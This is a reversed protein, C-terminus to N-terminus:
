RYTLSYHDITHGTLNHAEFAELWLMGKMMVGALTESQSWFETKCHCIKVYGNWDSRWVHMAHSTEYSQVTKAGYGYLPNPSTVYLSPMSLPYGSGILLCLSYSNGASSTYTGRISTSQAEALDYWTFDPLERRFIEKEATLRQQQSTNWGSM